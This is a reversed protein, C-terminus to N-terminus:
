SLKVVLQVEGKTIRLEEAIKEYSWGRQYLELIRDRNKHIVPSQQPTLPVVRTNSPKAPEPEEYYRPAPQTELLDIKDEARSLREEIRKAMVQLAESQLKMKKLQSDSYSEVNQVLEVMTSQLQKLERPSLTPAEPPRHYLEKQLAHIEKRMSIGWVTLAFIIMSLLIDVVSM